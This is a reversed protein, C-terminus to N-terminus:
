RMGGGQADGISGASGSPLEQVYQPNGGKLGKSKRNGKGLPRRLVGKGQRKGKLTPWDGNRFGVQETPSM